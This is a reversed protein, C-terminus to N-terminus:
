DSPNANWIARHVRWQGDAGKKLIRLVKYSSSESPTSPDSGRPRMAGRIIGWEFAYNGLVRVEEFEITYETVEMEQMGEAINRYHEDLAEPGRIWNEGPPMLIADESMLSRLTEFDGFRSAEMDRDHLQAIANLEQQPNSPNRKMDCTAMTTSLVTTLIIAPALLFSIGKLM